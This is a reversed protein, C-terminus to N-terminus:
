KSTLNTYRVISSKPRTAWDRKRAHAQNSSKPPARALSRVLCGCTAAEQLQVTDMIGTQIGDQDGLLWINAPLLVGWNADVLLNEPWTWNDSSVDLHKQQESGDRQNISALMGSSSTNESDAGSSVSVISGSGCETASDSASLGDEMVKWGARAWDEALIDNDTTNPTEDMSWIGPSALDNIVRKSGQILAAFVQRKGAEGQRIFLQAYPRPEPQLLIIRPPQAVSTSTSPSQLSDYDAERSNTSM